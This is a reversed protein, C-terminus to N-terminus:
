YRRSLQPKQEDSLRNAAGTTIAGTLLGRNILNQSLQNQQNRSEQIVALNPDLEKTTLLGGVEKSTQDVDSDRLARHGMQMARSATRRVLSGGGRVVDAIADVVPLMSEATDSGPTMQNAKRFNDDYIEIKRMFKVAAEDDPLLVSHKELM